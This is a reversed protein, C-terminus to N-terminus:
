ALIKFNLDLNKFNQFIKMTLLAIEKAECSLRFKFFFDTSSSMFKMSVFSVASM